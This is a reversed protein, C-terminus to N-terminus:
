RRRLRIRWEDRGQLRHDLLMVAPAEPLAVVTEARQSIRPVVLADIAHMTHRAQVLHTSRLHAHRRALHHGQLRRRLEVLRPRHLEHAVREVVPSGLTQEIHEVLAIAFREGDFNVEGQGACTHDGHEVIKDFLM